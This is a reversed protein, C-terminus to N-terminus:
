FSASWSRARSMTIPVKLNTHSDTVLQEVLGIRGSVRDFGVLELANSRATSLGVILEADGLVPINADHTSFVFQRKRKESKMTPVVGDTIFRNDLADEPQDVILPEDSELLFLLLVATAKQGASLAELTQWTPPDGDSATNLEIKTTAPLELEEIKMILEPNAQALREAAASSFGFYSILADKGERCRNALELLSLDPRTRIREILAALNGGVEERLLKELPERNGAMTVKVQVRGDLKKSVKKAAKELARYEPSQLNV